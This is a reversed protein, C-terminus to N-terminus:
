REVWVVRYALRPNRHPRQSIGAIRLGWATIQDQPESGDIETNTTGIILRGGPAVVKNLLHLVLDKQRRIPVYELGTRVFDFCRPPQWDIANGIFIRDHWHPLRRRALDALEPSIDLGFPEVALGKDRGWVVLREMLYGSACGIDLFGGSRHVADIIHSRAHEFGAADGSKGSQEWPTGASLYAATLVNSIRRYWEPENIRGAALDAEAQALVGAARNKDHAIDGTGIAGSPPPQSTM